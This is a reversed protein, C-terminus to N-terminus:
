NGNHMEKSEKRIELILKISRYAIAIISCIMGIGFGYYITENSNIIISWTLILLGWNCFWCISEAIIDKMKELM